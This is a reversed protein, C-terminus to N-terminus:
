GFLLQEVFRRLLAGAGDLERLVQASVIRQDGRQQSTNLAGHVRAMGIIKPEILLKMDETLPKKSKVIPLELPMHAPRRPSEGRAALQLSPYPAGDIEHLRVVTFGDSKPLNGARRIQRRVVKQACELSSM